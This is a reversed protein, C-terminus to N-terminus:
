EGDKEGFKLALKDWDALVEDNKRKVRSVIDRYQEREEKTKHNVNKQQEFSNQMEGVVETFKDSFDEIYEASVSVLERVQKEIVKGIKNINEEMEDYIKYYADSKKIEYVQFEHTTMGWDKKGFLSGFGRKIGGLLGSQKTTVSETQVDVPLDMYKISNSLEIDKLYDFDMRIDIDLDSLSKKLERLYQEGYDTIKTVEKKADEVVNDLVGKLDDVSKKMLIQTLQNIEKEFSRVESESEFKLIETSSQEQFKAIALKRDAERVARGRIYLRKSTSSLEEEAITAKQQLEVTAGQFVQTLHSRLDKNVQDIKQKTNSQALINHCIETIKEHFEASRENLDNQNKLLEGIKGELEKIEAQTIGEKDAFFKRIDLTNHLDDFVQKSGELASRMAIIPANKQMNVIINQMPEAMRSDNMLDDIDTKLEDLEASEYSQQPRRGYLKKAFDSVWNDEQYDPKNHHQNIYTLLRNALYADQASVAYINELHIKDKLLEHFIHQRVSDANDSNANQQDFKNILAFLRSKKITPIKDLQKKVDQEADSNLQTYDLVIMVASSRELQEALAIKLEDQGAENPGATDLLMFRGQTNFEQDLKFAVDIKPLNEFNKYADFPFKVGDDSSLEIQKSLRVLDNLQYLFSFINEEGQYSGNFRKGAKIFGILEIMDQHTGENIEILDMKPTIKNLFENLVAPDITLVPVDCAPNHCILTPLATMPRNRNPLIERGVIANITTSKGAKMTGVVALVVDFNQLKAIENNLIEKYNQSKKLTLIGKEANDSNQEQELIGDLDDLIGIQDGLIEILDNKYGIIQAYDIDNTNM